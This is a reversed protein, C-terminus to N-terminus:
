VLRASSLSITRCCAQGTFQFANMLSFFTVREIFQVQHPSLCTLEHYLSLACLSHLKAFWSFLNSTSSNPTPISVHQGYIYIYVYLIHEGTDVERIPM